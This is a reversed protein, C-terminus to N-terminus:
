HAHGHHHDDEEDAPKEVIAMETTSSLLWGMSWRDALSVIV